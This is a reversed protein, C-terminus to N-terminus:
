QDERSPPDPPSRPPASHDIYVTLCAGGSQKPPDSPRVVAQGPAATPYQDRRDRHEGVHAGRGGRTLARVGVARAARRRAPDRRHSATYGLARQLPTARRPWLSDEFINTE